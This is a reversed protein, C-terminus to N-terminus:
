KSTLKWRSISAGVPVKSIKRADHDLGATSTTANSSWYKMSCPRGQAESREYIPGRKVATVARDRNVAVHRRPWRLGSVSRVRVFASSAPRRTERLTTPSRNSYSKLGRVAQERENLVVILPSADVEFPGNWQIGTIPSSTNTTHFEPYVVLRKGTEAEGSARRQRRGVPCEDDLHHVTERRLSSTTADDSGAARAIV